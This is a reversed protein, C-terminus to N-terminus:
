VIRPLRAFKGAAAWCFGLLHLLMLIRSYAADMMMMMMMMMMTMTMTMPMMTMSIDDDDGDDYGFDYIVNDAAMCCRRACLCHGRSTASSGSIRRTNTLQQQDVEEQKQQKTDDDAATMMMMDDHDRVHKINPFPKRQTTGPLIICYYDSSRTMLLLLM